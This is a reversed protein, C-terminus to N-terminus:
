SDVATAPYVATVSFDHTRLFSLRYTGRFEARAM